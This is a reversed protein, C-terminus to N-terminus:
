QPASTWVQATTHTLGLWYSCRPTQTRPVSLFDPTFVVRKYQWKFILDINDLWAWPYEDDGSNSSSWSCVSVQGQSHADHTRVMWEAEQSQEHDSDDCQEQHEESGVQSLLLGHCIRVTVSSVQSWTQGDEGGRHGRTIHAAGPGQGRRIAPSGECGCGAFEPASVNHVRDSIIFITCNGVILIYSNLMLSNMNM